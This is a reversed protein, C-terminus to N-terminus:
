EARLAIMPDVKMARRAPIWCALLATILLLVAILFFILPDTTSVSFLLASMLRTLAFAGVLGATVGMLTLRMGHRIVLRLVNSQGAGLAMRIGIEHTRQTVAYSLVGYIGVTALILAVAAFVTLLLMSFQQQVVSTAVFDDLTKLNSVPQEPDLRLVENRIATILSAPDGVSRVVLNMTSFTQQTYPEYTQLTTAQDLGYHKTDGVIGVVEYWDPNNDRRDFTIRKGIPDENPFIKKAMTENILAVHPSDKTDRVTFLRGRLLPIGMAKFYDASVSYYNTSQSAGQPLPARGDVEFSVVFDDNTLPLVSAAGVSQVGPVTQVNEILQQFFSVQQNEEPYKRSPLSVTATLTNEAQFGFDVQQLQWFSKIMLGAGVLLVLAAAVELIVLSSRVVQRRGGETSGRGADKLTEHLDPKSAQWAPILGFIVGTLLTVTATFALVRGDLSVDSLRPLDQPALTLLLDMGWKALLLGVTGGILSLLLSETLLQRVIRWRGAGMAARIALERQRGTARALLLNAVNACAILLVFAVAGLLVLLAPKVRRVTFDLLPLLMVNWGTNVEPYQAALRGAITVMEARAQEVTVGPKLQGIVRSLNHGGRNQAQQPTFAIPTWIETERDLFHFNAPMVGVVIYNQGDLPITQNVINPDGGFRRQWLGHSLLAVNSKGPEHEAPLFERGLQPQIGLAGIFGETVSLGRLREPDGMGTLNLPGPRMAVLRDFVTNQKRWDLFNAPSVAFESFQPIKTERIMLLREPEKFPLPRLLVSNVVSFIASTAGIGLALTTIAILTFGPKARLMRAGFRIDQWLFQM